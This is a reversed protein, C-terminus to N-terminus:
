IIKRKEKLDSVLLAQFIRYKFLWGLVTRMFVWVPILVLVYQVWAFKITEMFGPLYVIEQSLPVRLDIELSTKLNSGQPQVINEYNYTIRELSLDPDYPQM